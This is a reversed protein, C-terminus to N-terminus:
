VFEKRIVPLQTRSFTVTEPLTISSFIFFPHSRLGELLDLLHLAKELPEVQFGTAAAERLIDEHSHM